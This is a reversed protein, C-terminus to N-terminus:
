GLNRVILPGLRNALAIPMRRWTTILRQYSAKSTNNQRVADGGQDYEGGHRDRWERPLHFPDHPAQPAVYAFFPKGDGHNADIYGILKDTYTKTAYYNKPLKRLYKGDETFTSRPNSATFSTMDWYSGAGDLRSCDREFGRAAPHKDTAKGLHSKGGM